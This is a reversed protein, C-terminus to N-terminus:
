MDFSIGPGDIGGDESDDISFDDDFGPGDLGPAEEHGEGVGPYEVVYENELGHSAFEVSLAAEPDSLMLRGSTIKELTSIEAVPIFTDVFEQKLQTIKGRNLDHSTPSLSATGNMRDSINQTYNDLARQYYIESKAKHELAKEKFAEYRANMIGFRDDDKSIEKV